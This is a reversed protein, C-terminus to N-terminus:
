SEFTSFDTFFVGSHKSNQIKKYWKDIMQIISIILFWVVIEILQISTSFQIKSPLWFDIAFNWWM